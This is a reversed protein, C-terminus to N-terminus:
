EGLASREHPRLGSFSPLPEGRAGRLEYLGPALALAPHEPHILRTARHVRVFWKGDGALFECAEAPSLQHRKSLVPEFRDAYDAVAVPQAGSQPAAVGYIGVDGQRHLFGPELLWDFVEDLRELHPGVERANSQVPDADLFLARVTGDASRLRVLMVSQEAAPADRRETALEVVDAVDTVYEAGRRFRATRGEWSVSIGFFSTDVGIEMGEEKAGAGAFLRLIDTASLLGVVEDGRTVLLRWTRNDTIRRLVDGVLEDERADVLDSYMAAEVPEAEGARLVTRLAFFVPVMGAVDHRRLPEGRRGGTVVVSGVNAEVMLDLADGLPTGAAVTVVERTMIEGVRRRAARELSM